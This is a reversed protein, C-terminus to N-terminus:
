FKKYQIHLTKTESLICFYMAVGEGCFATIIFFPSLFRDSFQIALFKLYSCVGEKDGPDESTLIKDFFNFLPGGGIQYM